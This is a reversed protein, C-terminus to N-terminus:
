SGRVNVYLHKINWLSMWWVRRHKQVCGIIRRWLDYLLATTRTATQSLVGGSAKFETWLQFHPMTKHRAVSDMDKYVEYLVFKCENENDRLVDFRLCNGGENEISGRADKEIVLVLIHTWTWLTDLPHESSSIIFRIRRLACYTSVKCFTKWGILSSKSM